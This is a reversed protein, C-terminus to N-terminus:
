KENYIGGTPNMNWTNNQIKDIIVDIFHKITFTNRYNYFHSNIHSPHTHYVRNGPRCIFKGPYLKNGRAIGRGKPWKSNDLRKGTEPNAFEILPPDLDYNDAVIRLVPLYKGAQVKVLAFLSDKKIISYLDDKELALLQQNFLKKSLEFHM